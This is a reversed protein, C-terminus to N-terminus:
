YVSRHWRVELRTGKGHGSDITLSGGRLRLARQRLNALGMGGPLGAAPTAQDANFGVGDDVISLMCREALQTLELRISAAKAHRMCNSLAEDVIRLLETKAESVPEHDLAGHLSAAISSRRAFSDVRRLLEQQFPGSHSVRLRSLVLELDGRLEACISRAEALASDADRNALATLEVDGLARTSRDRAATLAALQLELAFCQQKVSDHLEQGLREREQLTALERESDFKGRLEIAMGNLQRALVGIEDAKADILPNSFKADSWHAAAKAMRRLRAFVMRQLYWVSAFALLAVSAVMIPWEFSFARWLRRWPAIVHASLTLEANAALITKAQWVRAPQTGNAHAQLPEVIGAGCQACSLTLQIPQDSLELLAYGGGGLFSERPNEIQHRLVTLRLALQEASDSAIHPQLAERAQALPKELAGRSLARSLERYEFSLVAIEVLLLAPASLLLLFITFRLSLLNKWHLALPAASNNALSHDVSVRALGTGFNWRL